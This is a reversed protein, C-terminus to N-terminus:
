MNEVEEHYVDGLLRAISLERSKIWLKTAESVIEFVMLRCDAARFLFHPDNPSETPRASPELKRCFFDHFNKFSSILELIDVLGADEGGVVTGGDSEARHHEGLELSDIVSKLEVHLISGTDDTNYKKLYQAWFRQRLMSCQESPSPLIISRRGLCRQTQSISSFLLARSEGMQLSPPPMGVEIEGYWLDACYNVLPVNGDRELSRKLSQEVLPSIWHEM